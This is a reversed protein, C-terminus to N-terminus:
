PSAQQEIFQRILENEKTDRIRKLIGPKFAPELITAAKDFPMKEYMKGGTFHCPSCRTSLIPQIQKVFDITATDTMPATVATSVPMTKEVQSVRCTPYLGMSTIITLLLLKM